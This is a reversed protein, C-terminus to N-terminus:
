PGQIKMRKNLVSLVSCLFHFKESVLYIGILLLGVRKDKIAYLRLYM